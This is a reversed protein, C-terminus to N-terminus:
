WSSVGPNFLGLLLGEQSSSYGHQGSLQAEVAATIKSLKSGLPVAAAAAACV